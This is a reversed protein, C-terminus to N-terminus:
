ITLYSTLQSVNNALISDDITNKIRLRRVYIVSYFCAVSFFLVSLIFLQSKYQSIVNKFVERKDHSVIEAYEENEQATEEEIVPKEEEIIPKEEEIIPKEEEIIPKEEEIIPKEEEIIPKEEEELITDRKFNGLNKNGKKGSKNYSQGYITMYWSYLRGYKNNKVKDTVRLTWYGVPNEDRKKKKKKKKKKENNIYLILLYL